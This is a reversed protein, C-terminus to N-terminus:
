ALTRDLAEQTRGAAVLTQDLLRLANADGPRSALLKEAAAAAGAADGAALKLRALASWIEDPADTDEVSLREYLRIAELRAAPDAKPGFSRSAELDALVRVAEIEKPDIELAREALRAADGRRGLLALLAAGQAHLSASQPELAVAENVNRVAESSRGRSVALGAAILKAYADGRRLSAAHPDEPAKDTAPSGAAPGAARAVATFLLAPVLLRRV